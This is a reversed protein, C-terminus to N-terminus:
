NVQTSMFAEFAAEDKKNMNYSKKIDDMFVKEEPDSDADEYDDDDEEDSLNEGLKPLKFKVGGESSSNKGKKLGSTSPTGIEEDRQLRSLNLIQKSLKENVFDETTHEDIRVKRQKVRENQTVM